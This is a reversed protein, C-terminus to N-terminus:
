AAKEIIQLRKSAYRTAVFLCLGRALEAVGIAIWGMLPYLFLSACIAVGVQLLAILLISAHRRLVMLLLTDPFCLVNLWGGALFSGALVAVINKLGGGHSGPLPLAFDHAVIAAAVCAVTLTAFAMHLRSTVSSSWSRFAPIGGLGLKARAQVFSYQQTSALIVAVVSAVTGALAAAAVAEMDNARLAAWRGVMVSLSSLAVATSLALGAKLIPGFHSLGGRHALLDRWFSGPRLDVLAVWGAMAALAALLSVLLRGSIVLGITYVGIFIACRVTQSRSARAVQTTRQLEAHVIEAVHEVCKILALALALSFLLSGSHLVVMALSACALLFVCGALRLQVFLPLLTKEGQVLYISRLQLQAIMSLPWVVSQALSLMALDTLPTRSAALWPICVQMAAFIAQSLAVESIELHSSGASSKM